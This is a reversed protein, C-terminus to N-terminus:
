ILVLLWLRCGSKPVWETSTHRWKLQWTLRWTISALWDLSPPSCSPQLASLHFFRFTVPHTAIVKVKLQGQTKKLAHKHHKKSNCPQDDSSSRLSASNCRLRFSNSAASPSPWQSQAHHRWVNTLKHLKHCIIARFEFLEANQVHNLVKRGNIVALVETTIIKDSSYIEFKAWQKPKIPARNQCTTSLM